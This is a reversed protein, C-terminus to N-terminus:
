GLFAPPDRLGGHRVFPLDPALRPTPREAGRYIPAALDLPIAAETEVAGSLGAVCAACDSSAAGGDPHGHIRVLDGSFVLMAVLLLGAFRPGDNRRTSCLTKM